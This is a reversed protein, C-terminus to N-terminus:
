PVLINTQRVRTIGERENIVLNADIMPYAYKGMAVTRDRGIAAWNGVIPMLPGLSIHCNKDGFKNTSRGQTQGKTRILTRFDDIFGFILIETLERIRCCHVSIVPRKRPLIERLHDSPKGLLVVDEDAFGERLAAQASPTVDGFRKIPTFAFPDQVYIDAFKMARYHTDLLWCAKRFQEFVDEDRTLLVTHQGTALAHLIALIVIGEDHFRHKGVKAKDGRIALRESREGFTKRIANNVECDDPGFALGELRRDRVMPRVLKRTGLLNIYWEAAFIIEPRDAPLEFKTVADSRLDHADKVVQHMGVNIGRPDNLWPAIETAVPGIMRLQKNRLLADWIRQDTEALYIDSDAFVSVNSGYDDLDQAFQEPTFPFPPIPTFSLEGIQVQKDAFTTPVFAYREDGVPATLHKYTLSPRQKRSAM